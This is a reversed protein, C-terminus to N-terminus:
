AAEGMFIVLADSHPPEINAGFLRMIIRDRDHPTTPGRVPIMVAGPYAGRLMDRAESRARDRQHEPGDECLMVVDNGAEALCDRLAILRQAEGMVILRNGAGLLSRSVIEPRTTSTLGPVSIELALGM